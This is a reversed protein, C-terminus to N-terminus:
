ERVQRKAAKVDATIMEKVIDELDHKPEWGLKERAKTADGILEEVETPRFYGPDVEVLIRGPRLDPCRMGVKRAFMDKDVSAIRGKEDPGSGEFELDIGIEAFTMRAFDRVSCSSGTAIVYDDPEDQQLILYM